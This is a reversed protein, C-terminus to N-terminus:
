LVASVICWNLHICESLQPVKDLLLSNDEQGQEGFM